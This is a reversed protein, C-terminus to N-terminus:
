KNYRVKLRVCIGGDPSCFREQSISDVLFLGRGSEELVGSCTSKEPPTFSVSSRVKIKVTDGSLESEVYAVGESHRFVNEVLETVILKSDFISEDALGMQKLFGDIEKLAREMKKLDDLEFYM